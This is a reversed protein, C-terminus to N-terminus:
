KAPVKDCPNDPPPAPVKNFVDTAKCIPTNIDQCARAGNVFFINLTEGSTPPTVLTYPSGCPQGGSLPCNKKYLTNGNCNVAGMWAHGRSGSEQKPGGEAMALGIVVLAMVLGSIARM